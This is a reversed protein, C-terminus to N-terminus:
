TADGCLGIRRKLAELMEKRLLREISYCEGLCSGVKSRVSLGSKIACVQGTKIAGRCSFLIPFAAHLPMDPRSSAHTHLM